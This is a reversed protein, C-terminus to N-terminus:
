TWAYSTFNTLWMFAIYALLSCVGFCLAHLRTLYQTRVILSINVTFVLATFACVSSTWLDSSYGEGVNLVAGYQYGLFVVFFIIGAHIM